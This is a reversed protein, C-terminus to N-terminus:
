YSSFPRAVMNCEDPEPENGFEDKCKIYFNNGTDWDASHEQETTTPFAIGDAFDYTCDHPGYVCEAKENTILTLQANDNYVRVVVPFEFDTEVEFETTENDCNGTLEAIDCCKITYEYDGEDLWLDQSHTYSNTNAFLVYASDDESSNKFSCYSQGENYGASTKATLTVKVSETSDMIVSDEVPSISDIVLPKTGTLIYEYSEAMTYRDSENKLPYSKCKFYFKNETEDKLGTLTTNCKYLTNANMETISKSCTMVNAMSDYDVDSHSWKCDAPKDTYVNVDQSIIGSETFWGNLPDTLEISPATTDPEDQV